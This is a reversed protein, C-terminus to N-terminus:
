RHGGSSGHGGHGGHVGARAFAFARAHAYASASARAAGYAGGGGYNVAGGDAGYGVGGNFEAADLCGNLVASNCDRSEAHAATVIVAVCGAILFLRYGLM